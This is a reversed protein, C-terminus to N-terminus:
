RHEANGGRQNAAHYVGNSDVKYLKLTKKTLTTRKLKEAFTATLNTNRKIGPWTPTV